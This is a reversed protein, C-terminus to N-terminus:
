QPLETKDLVKIVQEIRVDAEKDDSFVGLSIEEGDFMHLIAERAAHKHQGYLPYAHRAKVIYHPNVYINDGLKILM